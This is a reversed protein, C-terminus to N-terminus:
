VLGGDNCKPRITQYAYKETHLVTEDMNGPRSVLDMPSLVNPVAYDGAEDCDTWFEISPEPLAM